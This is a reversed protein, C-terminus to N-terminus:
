DALVFINAFKLKASLQTQDLWAGFKAGACAGVMLSPPSHNATAEMSQAIHLQFQCSRVLTDNKKQSHKSKLSFSCVLRPLRFNSRAVRPGLSWVWWNAEHHAIAKM